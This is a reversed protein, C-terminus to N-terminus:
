FENARRRRRRILFILKFKIKWIKKKFLSLSHLKKKNNELILLTIFNKLLEEEKEENQNSFYSFCV